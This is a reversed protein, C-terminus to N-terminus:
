AILKPDSCLGRKLEMAPVVQDGEQEVEGLLRDLFLDKADDDRGEPVEDGARRLLVERGHQDGLHQRPDLLRHLPPLKAVVLDLLIDIKQGVFELRAKIAHRSYGRGRRPRRM